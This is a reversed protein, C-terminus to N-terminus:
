LVERMKFLGNGIAVKDRELVRTRFSGDNWIETRLTEGPYVFATFRADMAGFRDADYDCIVALLAHAACGFSCLGHLIPREFGARAAVRPDLHLPNPDANWRYYLAQEPRTPTDFVHDPETEPLNHPKRVPGEPGGFGGDGRLFTTGRCTAFLGGTDADRIEKESYLLAGRGEGKDVLGTVRTKAIVTGEAPLTRHITMGQEGHVLKLADVGTEPRGLWFGPHGLINAMAPMARRDDELGGVYALQRMDLPDQGIGISLGFHAVEAPGYSQRMEPIDFNMLRDYEIPM